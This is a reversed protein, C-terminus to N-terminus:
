STCSWTGPSFKTEPGAQGAVVLDAAWERRGNVSQPTGEGRQVAVTQGEGAFTPGSEVYQRGGPENGPLVIQRGDIVLVGSAVADPGEAAGAVLLSRGQYVFSCGGQIAGLAKPADASLPTLKMAGTPAVVPQANVEAVSVAAAGQAVGARQAFDEASEGEPEGQSCAALATLMALASALRM